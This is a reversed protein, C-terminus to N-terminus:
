TSGDEDESDSSIEIVMFPDEVEIITASFDDGLEDLMSSIDLKETKVKTNNVETNESEAISSVNASKIDGNKLRFASSDMDGNSQKGDDSEECSDQENTVILEMQQSNNNKAKHDM